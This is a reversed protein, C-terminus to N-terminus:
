ASPRPCSPGGQFEPPAPPNTATTTQATGAEEPTTPPTTAGCRTWTCPRPSPTAWSWSPPSGPPQRPKQPHTTPEGTSASPGALLFRLDDEHTWARGDIIADLLADTRFVALEDASLQEPHHDQTM